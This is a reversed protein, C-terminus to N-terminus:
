RPGILEKYLKVFERESTCKRWAPEDKKKWNTEVIEEDFAITVGNTSTAYVGNNFFFHM